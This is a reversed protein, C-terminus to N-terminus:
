VIMVLNIKSFTANGSKKRVRMCFLKLVDMIYHSQGFLSYANDANLNYM